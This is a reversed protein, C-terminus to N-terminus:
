WKKFGKKRNRKRYEKRTMLSKEDKNQVLKIAIMLVSVSCFVFFILIDAFDM